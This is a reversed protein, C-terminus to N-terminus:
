VRWKGCIWRVQGDTLEKLHSGSPLRERLDDLLSRGGREVLDSGWERRLRAREASTLGRNTMSSPLRDLRM